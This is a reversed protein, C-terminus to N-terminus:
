IGEVDVGSGVSAKVNVDVSVSLKRLACQCLNAVM